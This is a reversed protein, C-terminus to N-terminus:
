KPPNTVVDHIAKSLYPVTKTSLGPMSIRGNKTLYIHYKKTLVDCQAATLGTYSFMGIQNIINTWDGPTGQSKLSDFLMQRMTRIRDSMTKMEQKWENCLEPDALVTAVIRAGHIPPSSYMGRIIVKLQSLISVAGKESNCVCHLAGIREGYLGINKAYSQACLLEIGLSTFLRIASADRDFDGSAFGQYACDIFPFHGKDKIIEAIAKWQDMTPDAGTPNHACAHLLIISGNPANKIDSTMGEFDFGNKELSYYRYTKYPVGCDRAINFHNVWTPDSIYMTTGPPLIQKLLATGVRVAGTGSLAQTTVIHKSSVLDGFILKASAKNFEPLGDIPLYEKNFNSELMKKEAKKVCNLVYPKGEETRYAGVGLNLKDPHTDAQFALNLGLIPDPPAEPVNDFFSMRTQAAVLNPILHNLSTQARRLAIQVSDSQNM